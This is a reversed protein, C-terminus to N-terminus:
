ERPYHDHDDEGDGIADHLWARAFSWRRYATARSIGQAAAAEELSLGAFFTLKILDAMAPDAAALQDLADNLALLEAPDGCPAAIAPGIDDDNLRVARHERGRKISHKERAHEILIRRMAEAAAAFFHRRGDWGDRKDDQVLRLYAEHVLATAQLTHSGREQAMRARALQRLENYVLPLLHEAAHPDGDGMAGLLRTADSM